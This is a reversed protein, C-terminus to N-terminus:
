TEGDQNSRVLFQQDNADFTILTAAAIHMAAALSFIMNLPINNNYSGSEIRAIVSRNVHLKEALESQSYCNLRRYYAVKAGILGYVTLRREM